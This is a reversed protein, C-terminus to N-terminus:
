QENVNNGLHRKVIAAFSEAKLPASGVLDEICGTCQRVVAEVNPCNYKLSSLSERLDSM